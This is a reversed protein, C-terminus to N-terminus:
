NPLVRRCIQSAMDLHCTADGSVAPEEARSAIRRLAETESAGFDAFITHIHYEGRTDKITCINHISCRYWFADVTMCIAQARDNEASAWQETTATRSARRNLVVQTSGFDLGATAQQSAQWFSATASERSTGVYHREWSLKDLSSAALFDKREEDDIYRLDALAYGESNCHHVAENWTVPEEILLYERGSKADSWTTDGLAQTAVAAVALTLTLNRLEM